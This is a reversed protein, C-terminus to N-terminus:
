SPNSIIIYVLILIYLTIVISLHIFNTMYGISLMIIGITSAIGLAIGLGRITSYRFLGYQTIDTFMQILFITLTVLIVIGYYGDTTSNALAPISEIFEQKTQNTFNTIGPISINDFVSFNIGIESFNAAM